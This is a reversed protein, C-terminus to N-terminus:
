TILFGEPLGNASYRQLLVNSSKLAREDCWQYFGEAQERMDICIMAVSIFAADRPWVYHYNPMDVTYSPNGANGAVIGGNKLSCDLFVDRSREILKQEEMM